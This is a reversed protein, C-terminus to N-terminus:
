NRQASMPRRTPWRTTLPRQHRSLVPATSPSPKQRREWRPRLPRFAPSRSVGNSVVFNVSNSAGGGPAPNTVVVAYNGATAQDSATLSITLQTSSLFTPTHAVAHYTVTSNSVFNTGVITLTQAAAGATGSTSFSQHGHPCTTAKVTFNLTSSTGGAPAPNTVAVGYTGGTALDSGSLTITLQTSSLFTPTHAVAHYTVTSNPPLFKTGNITLLQSTTGAPASTPSLSTLTPAPNSVTFNLSNSTGGGQIPNVVVVAAAAGTALDSTSLTIKLQTASVYTTTHVVGKFSVTGHELPVEHGHPDFDHGRVRNHGLLAFPQHAHTRSQERHLEGFELRRGWSNSQGGCGCLDWGHSPRQHESYDEVPDRKCIHCRSWHRQLHSYFSVHFGVRQNDPDPGGSGSNCLRAFPQYHGAPSQRCHFEGLEIRRRGSGSQDSGGCLTGATAQDSASLTITLEESSVFTATHGVGNYTVTSTSVFNTGNITLTQAAAGATAWSPSLSSINPVPNLGTGTLGVTQPSGLASDTFVLSASRNGAASPTFTVDVTCTGNTNLNARRLLRATKSFDGSNTGGIAVSSISLNSAGANTVTVTQTSSTTNVTQSSFSLSLPSFKVAGSLFSAVLNSANVSGIGSAFDWGTTAGFAPQYSNSTNTAIAACTAGSGGGGTLVCNPMTTYGSGAATLSAAIGPAETDSCAAGSGGGGSIACTPASTYGSGFNTLEIYCAQGDTCAYVRCSAGTGGGGTLSCTPSSTYGSGGNTLSISNVVGTQIAKCTAGSGGGGSLACTPATTYGSGLATVWASTLTQPATSLVGYTGSPAYCNM